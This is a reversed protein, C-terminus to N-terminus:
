IPVVYNPNNNYDDLKQKTKEYQTQCKSLMNRGQESNCLLEDNRIDRITQRFADCSYNLFDGHLLVLSMNISTTYISIDTEIDLTSTTIIHNTNTIIYKVAMDLLNPIIFYDTTSLEKSKDKLRNGLEFYNDVNLPGMDTLVKFFVQEYINSTM